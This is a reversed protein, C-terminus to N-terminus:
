ASVAEHRKEGVFEGNKIVVVRLVGVASKEQVPGAPTAEDGEGKKAAQLDKTEIM